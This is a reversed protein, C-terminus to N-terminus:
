VAVVGSAPMRADVDSDQLRQVDDGGRGADDNRDPLRGAEEAVPLDDLDIDARAQRRQIRVQRLRPDLDAVAHPRALQESDGAACSDAGAGMQMELQPLVSHRDVRRWQEGALM